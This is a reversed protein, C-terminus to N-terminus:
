QPDEQRRVLRFREGTQGPNGWFSGDEARTFKDLKLFSAIGMVTEPSRGGFVDMVEKTYSNVFDTLKVRITRGDFTFTGGYGAQEGPITFIVSSGHFEATMVGSPMPSDTSYRSKYLVLAWEGDLISSMGWLPTDIGLSKLFLKASEIKIGLAFRTAASGFSGRHIGVLQGSQDFIPGGSFGVGTAGQTYTLKRPDQQANPDDGSDLRSVTTPVINWNSDAIFLQETTRLSENPRIGFSPIDDRKAQSLLPRVELVALDLQEVFTQLVIAPVANARDWYFTVSATHSKGVLHSATVIRIAGPEASAIVGAGQDGSVNVRVVGTKMAEWNVPGGLVVFPVALAILFTFVKNTTLRLM